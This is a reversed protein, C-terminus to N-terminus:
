WTNVNVENAQGTKSGALFGSTAFRLTNEDNIELRAYYVM